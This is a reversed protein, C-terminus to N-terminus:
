KIMIINSDKYALGFKTDYYCRVYYGDSNTIDENTKINFTDSTIKDKCLKAHAGIYGVPAPFTSHETEGTHLVVVNYWLPKINDSYNSITVSTGSLIVDGTNIVKLIAPISNENVRLEYEGIHDLVSKINYMKIGNVTKDPLSSLDINENNDNESVILSDGFPVYIFIDDGLSFYTRDGYETIVEESYEIKPLVRISQNSFRGIKYIRTDHPDKGKLIKEFGEQDYVLESMENGTQETITIFFKSNEDINIKTIIKCHGNTYLVDGVNLQEIDVYEIENLIEPLESTLWYIDQGCLYCVFSSCVTGYYSGRHTNKGYGRTYLISAPNKLASYFTSLNRHYHIDQGYTFVSSYPLGKINGLYYSEVLTNKPINGLPTWETFCKNVFARIKNEEPSGNTGGGGGGMNLIETWENWGTTKCFRIALQNNYSIALQAVRYNVNSRKNYSPFVVCIGGTNFPNNFIATGSTWSYIGTDYYNNLDDNDELVIKNALTNTEKGEGENNTMFVKNWTLWGNTSKYRFYMDYAYYVYQFISTTSRGNNFPVVMCQGLSQIPSNIPYNNNTWSYVGMDTIDDLNDISTLLKRNYFTDHLQREDIIRTWALYGNARASHRIYNENSLSILWQTNKVFSEPSPAFNSHYFPYVIMMGGGRIPSNQPVSDNTWVFIGLETILDLDDDITLVKRNLFTNKTLFDQNITATESDGIDNVINEAALYDLDNWRNVGDGIKRLRTDTEFGVEGEMLIPNVERWRTSTDRRLQIREM